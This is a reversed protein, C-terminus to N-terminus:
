GAKKVLTLVTTGSTLEKLELEGSGNISYGYVDISQQAVGPYAYVYTIKNNKAIWAVTYGDARLNDTATQIPQGYTGGWTIGDDMRVTITLYGSADKPDWTGILDEDIENLLNPALLLTFDITAKGGSFEVNNIGFASVGSATQFYAFVSCMGTHNFSRDHQGIMGWIGNQNEYFCPAIQATNFDRKNGEGIVTSYWVNDNPRYVNGASDSKWTITPNSSVEVHSVVYGTPVNIFTILGYEPEVYDDGGGGGEGCSIVAFVIAMLATACLLRRDYVRRLRKM